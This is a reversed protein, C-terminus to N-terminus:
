CMPGKTTCTPQRVPVASVTLAGAVRRSPDVSSAMIPGHTAAPPMAAAVPAGGSNAVSLVLRNGEIRSEYAAPRFLDVVVRTRGNAEAASVASASGNGVTVRREALGNHTDPLDIAIRPPNDTTFVQADAVPDAFQLTIDVRGNAGPAHSINQLVNAAFAPFASCLLWAGLGLATVRSRSIRRIVNHASMM